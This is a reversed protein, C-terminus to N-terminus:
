EQFRQITREADKRKRQLTNLFYTQKQITRQAQMARIAIEALSSQFSGITATMTSVDINMLQALSALTALQEEAESSLSLM